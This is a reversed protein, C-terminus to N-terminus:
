SIISVKSTIINPRKKRCYRTHVEIKVKKSCIRSIKQALHFAQDILTQHEYTEQHLAKILLNWQLYDHSALLLYFRILNILCLLQYRNICIDILVLYKCAKDCVWFFPKSGWVAPNSGVVRKDETLREFWHAVLTWIVSPLSRNISTRVHSMDM